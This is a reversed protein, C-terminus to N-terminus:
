KPVSFENDSIEKNLLLVEVSWDEKLDSLEETLGRTTGSSPLCITGDHQRVQGVITEIALEEEKGSGLVGIWYERIAVFLGLKADIFYEVKPTPPYPGKDKDKLKGTILYLEPSATNAYVDRLFDPYGLIKEITLNYYKQPEKLNFLMISKLFSVEDSDISMRDIVTASQADLVYYNNDRIVNIADLQRAKLKNPSKYMVEEILTNTGGYSNFRKFHITRIESMRQNILKAVEEISKDSASTRFARLKKAADYENLRQIAKGKVQLKEEMSIEDNPLQFEAGDGGTEMMKAGISAMDFHGTSKRLFEMIVDNKPGEPDLELYKELHYIIRLCLETSFYHKRGIENNSYAEELYQTSTKALLPSELVLICICLTLVFYFTKM